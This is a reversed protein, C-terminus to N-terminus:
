GETLMTALTKWFQQRIKNFATRDIQSEEGLVHWITDNGGQMHEARTLIALTSDMQQGIHHLQYAEGTAPDLAALGQSMRQLNTRGMADTYTLDIERILAIHGNVMESSLGAEKCIDYQEMSSFRSIVDLPYGSERQITAAENMTLGNLTAGKLKLAQNAGGGIAGSIAGWKFGESAALEAAKVAQNFDETEIGTIIGAAVGGLAGSSLAMTTGTKAATAFIMSVAPAGVGGSVASVTVCILIVGTGIAVNKIIQDTTDDYAEQEQVVTEGNDGLTFIYKKGQFQENLEESTYGFYINSQSNYALTDLYEQSIYVAEVNQVYYGDGLESLLNSYLSDEVYRTLESDDFSDFEPTYVYEDVIDIDDEINSGESATKSLASNTDSLGESMTERTDIDSEIVATETESASEVATESEIKQEEGASQASTGCGTFILAGALLISFLKKM